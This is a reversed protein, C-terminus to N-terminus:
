EVVPGVPPPSFSAAGHPTASVVNRKYSQRDAVLSELVYAILLLSLIYSTYPLNAVVAVTVSLKCIYKSEINQTQLTNGSFSTQTHPHILATHPYWKPRNIKALASKFFARCDTTSM